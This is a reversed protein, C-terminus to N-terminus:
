RALLSEVLSGRAVTTLTIAQARDKVEGGQGINLTSITRARLDQDGDVVANDVYATTITGNTNYVFTAGGQVYLTTIAGTGEAITTGSEVKCTTLACKVRTSGASSLTTLTTGSGILCTGNPAVQVTGVTSTASENAAIGVNGGMVSVVASSHNLLLDVTSLEDALPQKSGYVRVAANTSALDLKVIEPGDGAIGINVAACTLTPRKTRYEAYGGTNVEPLGLGGFKVDLRNFSDTPLGYRAYRDEHIFYIEDNTAPVTGGSWNQANDWHWPGTASTVSAATAAGAAATDGASITIPVGENGTMTIVAGDQEWTADLFEGDAAQCLAVLGEAVTTTTEGTGAVYTVTKNGVTIYATETSAWTGSITVTNVQAVAQASGLFTKKAM